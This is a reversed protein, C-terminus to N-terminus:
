PTQPYWKATDEKGGQGTKRRQTNYFWDQPSFNEVESNAAPGAPSMQLAEPFCLTVLGLAPNLELWWM